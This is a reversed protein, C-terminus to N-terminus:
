PVGFKQCLPAAVEVVSAYADDFTVLVARPPLGKGDADTIVDALSVPKYYTTLFRLAAEFKEPTTSVNMGRTYPSEMPSIDHFVVCRLSYSPGLMRAIGFCDPTHWFAKAALNTTMRRF